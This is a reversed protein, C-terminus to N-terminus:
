NHYTSQLEKQWDDFQELFFESITFLNISYAELYEKMFAAQSLAKFLTEWQSPDKCHGEFIYHMLCDVTITLRDKLVKCRDTHDYFQMNNMMITDLPNEM